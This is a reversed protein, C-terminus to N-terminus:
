MEYIVAQLWRVLITKITSRMRSYYYPLDIANRKWSAALIALGLIIAAM